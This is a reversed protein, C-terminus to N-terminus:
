FFGCMYAPFLYNKDNFFHYDQLGFTADYADQNESSKVRRCIKERVLLM